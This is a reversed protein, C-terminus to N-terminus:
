QQGDPFGEKTSNSLSRIAEELASLRQGFGTDDGNTARITTAKRLPCDRAIHGSENCRYCLGASRQRRRHGDLDMPEGLPLKFTTDSPSPSTLNRRHTDPFRPSAFPKTSSVQRVSAETQAVVQAGDYWVDIDDPIIGGASKIQIIQRQLDTGIARRFNFVLERDGLRATIGESRFRNVFDGLSEKKPDFVAHHIAWHAEDESSVASFAKRIHDKLNDFSPIEESKMKAYAVILHRAWKQARDRFFSLTFYAKTRDDTFSTSQFHIYLEVATLFPEVDKSDGKFQPPREAEVRSRAPSLAKNLVDALQNVSSTTETNTPQAQQFRQEAEQAQQRLADLRNRLLGASDEDMTALVAEVPDIPPQTTPLSM